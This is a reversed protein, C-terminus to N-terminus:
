NKIFDLCKKITLEKNSKYESECITLIEFGNEIALNTKIRDREWLEKAILPKDKFNVCIDDEKYITPNGHYVDGNFEIIKNLYKFDYLYYTNDSEIFFEGNLNYYKVYDSEEINLRNVIKCFMENSIKSYGNKLNGNVMLSRLWKEQRNKWKQMGEEKGYKEICKSMSFTSQREKLLERSEEKSYGKKLYYEISTNFMGIYKKPNLLKDKNFENLKYTAQKIIEKSKLISDEESFGKKIWHEKKSPLMSNFDFETMKSQTNKHKNKISEIKLIADDKSINFKNMQWEVSFVNVNKIEKIKNEAEERTINYRKMQDEVSYINWKNISCKKLEKIKDEADERTINYREMQDEISFRNM